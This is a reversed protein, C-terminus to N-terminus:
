PQGKGQLERLTQESIRYYGRGGTRVAPIQGTHVWRWVTNVCVNLAAAIESTRYFKQGLVSRSQEERALMVSALSQLRPNRPVTTPM